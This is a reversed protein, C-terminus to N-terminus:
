EYYTEERIKSHSRNLAQPAEKIISKMSQPSLSMSEPLGLVSKIDRVPISKRRAQVPNNSLKKWAIREPLGSLKLTGSASKQTLRSELSSRIEELADDWQLVQDAYFLMIEGDPLEVTTVPDQLSRALFVYQEVLDKQVVALSHLSANSIIYDLERRIKKLVKQKRRKDGAPFGDRYVRAQTELHTALTQAIHFPLRRPAGRSTEQLRTDVWAITEVCTNILNSLDDSPPDDEEILYDSGREYLSQMERMRKELARAERRAETSLFLDQISAFGHRMERRVAQIGEALSGQGEVLAGLIATNDQILEEVHQVSHDVFLALKDVKNETRQVGGAVTDLMKSMNHVRYATWASVGLNVLGVGLNAVGLYGNLANGALAKTPNVLLAGGGPNVSEAIGSLGSPSDAKVSPLFAGSKHRAGLVNNKAIELSYDDSSGGLWPTPVIGEIDLTTSM